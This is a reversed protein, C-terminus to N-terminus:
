PQVKHCWKTGDEATLLIRSKDACSYVPREAGLVRCLRLGFDTEMNHHCWDPDIPVQVAPVDISEPKPVCFYRGDKDVVAYDSSNCDSGDERHIPVSQYKWATSAALTDPQQSAMWLVVAIWNM